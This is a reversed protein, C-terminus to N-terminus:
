AVGVRRARQVFQDRAELVAGGELDRLGEGGQAIALPGELPQLLREDLAVGPEGPDLRGHEQAAQVAVRAERRQQLLHVQWHILLEPSAWCSWRPWRSPPRAAASPRNAIPPSSRPTCGPRRRG